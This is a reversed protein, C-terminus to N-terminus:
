DSPPHHLKEIQSEAIDLAENDGVGDQEQITKVKSLTESASVDGQTEDYLAFWPLGYEKTTLTSQISIPQCHHTLM